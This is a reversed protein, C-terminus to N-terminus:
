FLYYYELLFVRVELAAIKSENTASKARENALLVQLDDKEQRVTRIMRNALSIEQQFAVNAQVIQNNIEMYKQKMQNFHDQSRIMRLELKAIVAKQQEVLEEMRNTFPFTFSKPAM